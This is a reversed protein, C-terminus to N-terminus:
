LSRRETQRAAPVNWGAGQHVKGRGRRGMFGIRLLAGEGKRRGRHPLPHRRAPHPPGPPCLVFGIGAFGRGLASPFRLEEVALILQDM